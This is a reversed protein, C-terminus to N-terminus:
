KLISPHNRYKVISKIVPDNISDSIPDCNAYEVIKLNSAINSFFTNLIQAANRNSEIIEDEETLTIKSVIVRSVIKDSFFQKITKWFTKNDTVNKEDLIGYYLKKSKRVLPM